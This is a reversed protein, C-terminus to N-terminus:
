AALFDTSVWGAVGNYTVGAFGNVTEGALTVVAGAPITLLVPSTLSPGSRLNLDVVVTGSSGASGPSPSTTPDPNPAPPNGSLYATAVWGATGNYTVASYSGSTVGSLSVTGGAPITM